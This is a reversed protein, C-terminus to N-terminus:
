SCLELGCKFFQISNEPEYKIGGQLLLICKINYILYLDNRQTLQLHFKYLNFSEKMNKCINSHM